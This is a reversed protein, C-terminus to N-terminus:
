RSLRRECSALARDKPSSKTAQELRPASNCELGQANWVWSAFFYFCMFHPCVKIKNLFIISDKFIFFLGEFIM